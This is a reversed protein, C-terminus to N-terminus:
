VQYWATFTGGWRRRHYFNAGNYDSWLQVGDGLNQLLHVLVGSNTPGNTAGFGYSVISAVPHNANANIDVSAYSQFTGFGTATGTFAPNNIPAKANLQTQIASTVGGVYGIETSSVNGISTTSPLVVTGTFTPSALNAKLNDATTVFATTALQTTNTGAAATPAAPVGTFTPSALNAKLNDATTVFATTALQTTNTGAAATPAAPVGTFTPSFIPSYTASASAQTLLPEEPFEVVANNSVDPAKLEIYGSTEGYLRIRSM